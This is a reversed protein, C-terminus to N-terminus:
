SCFSSCVAFCGGERLEPTTPLSTACVHQRHPSRADEGALSQNNPLCLHRQAGADPPSLPRDGIHTAVRKGARFVSRCSSGARCSSFENAQNRNRRLRIAAFCHSRHSARKAGVCALAFVAPNLREFFRLFLSFFAQWTKSLEIFSSFNPSLGASKGNLFIQFFHFFLKDPEFFNM